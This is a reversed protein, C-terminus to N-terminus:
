LSAPRCLIGGFAASIPVRTGKWYRAAKAITDEEGLKPTGALSFIEDGFGEESGGGSEDSEM